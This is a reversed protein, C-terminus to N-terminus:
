AQLWRCADAMQGPPFTRLEGRVLLGAVSVCWEEWRPAGVVAIKELSHRFRFDLKTNAWAAKLEWGKFDHDMYILARVSGFKKAAAAVRPLLVRLYDAETLKGTFRVALINDHTGDMFEIM